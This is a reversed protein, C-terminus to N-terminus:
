NIQFKIYLKERRSTVVELYYIGSKLNLKSIDIRYKSESYGEYFASFAERLTITDFYAYELEWGGIPQMRPDLISCKFNFNPKEDKFIFYLYGDESVKHLGADIHRTVLAYKVTDRKVVEKKVKFRWQESKGFYTQGIYAQVQWAYSKGPELDPIDSPHMLMPNTIGPWEILPRNIALADSKSQGDLIEVLTMTYNLSGSAAVPAPPIWNYNPRTEEIESNDIPYSLLLPTPNEIHINTCAPQETSGANQGAGDCDGTICVSWICLRYDGSPWTGTMREIESIDQNFFDTSTLVLNMSNILNAGPNVIIAASKFEVITGTQGTIRGHFQVSIAKNALSIATFNLAEKTSFLYRDTQGYQINIQSRVALSLCLLALLIRTKLNM